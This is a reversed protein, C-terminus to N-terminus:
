RKGLLLGCSCHWESTCWRNGGRSSQSYFIWYVRKIARPMLDFPTDSFRELHDRLYTSDESSIFTDDQLRIIIRRAATGGTNTIRLDWVGEPGGISPVVDVAIYPRNRDISERESQISSERLKSQPLSYRGLLLVSRALSVSLASLRVFQKCSM